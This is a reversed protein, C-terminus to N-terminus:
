LFMLGGPAKVFCFLTICLCANVYIADSAGSTELRIVEVSM